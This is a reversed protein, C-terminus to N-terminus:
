IEFTKAFAAGVYPIFAPASGADDGVQRRVDNCPTDQGTDEGICRASDRNLLAGIGGFVRFSAFQWRIKYGAGFYLWYAPSVRIVYRDDYNPTDEGPMLLAFPDIARFDGASLAAEMFFGRTETRPFHLRTFAAVQLGALGFGAGVGFSWPPM